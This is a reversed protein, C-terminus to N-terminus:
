QIIHVGIMCLVGYEGRGLFESPFLDLIGMNNKARMRMFYHFIKQKSLIQYRVTGRQDRSNELVLPTYQGNSVEGRM